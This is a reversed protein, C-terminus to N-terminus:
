KDNLMAYNGMFVNCRTYSVVQASQLFRLQSSQEPRAIGEDVTLQCHRWLFGKYLINSKNFPM